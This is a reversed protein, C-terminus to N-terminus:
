GAFRVSKTRLQELRRRLTASKRHRWAWALARLPHHTPWHQDKFLRAFLELEAEDFPLGHASTLDRFRSEVESLDLGHAQARLAEIGSNFGILREDGDVDRGV